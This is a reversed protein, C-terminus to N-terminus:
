RSQPAHGVEEASSTGRELPSGALRVVIFRAITFGILCALLRLWQGSSVFYFGGVTIGTRLLLSSLFWLAAHKSALARRVTWWLGGFFLGGLVGGAGTALLFTVADSMAM